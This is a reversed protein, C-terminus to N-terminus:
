RNKDKNDKSVHNSEEVTLKGTRTKVLHVGFTNKDVQPQIIKYADETLQEDSKCEVLKVNQVRDMGVVSNNSLRPEGSFSIKSGLPFGSFPKATVTLQDWYSRDDGRVHSLKARSKDDSFSDIVATFAPATRVMCRTEISFAQWCIRLEGMARRQLPLCAVAEPADFIVYDPGAHSKAIDPGAGIEGVFCLVTPPFGALFPDDHRPQFM